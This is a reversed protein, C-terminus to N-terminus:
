VPTEDDSDVPPVLQTQEDDSTVLQRLPASSRNALLCALLRKGPVTAIPPTPRFRLTNSPNEGPHRNANEPSTSEASSSPVALPLRRILSAAQDIVAQTKGSRLRLAWGQPMAQRWRDDGKTPESGPLCLHGGAVVQLLALEPVFTSPATTSPPAHEPNPRLWHSWDVALFAHLGVNIRQEDLLNNAWAHTDTWRCDNYATFPIWRVGRGASRTAEHAHQDIWVAADALVDSLPRLGFGPVVPPQWGSAASSPARGILLNRLPQGPEHTKGAKNPQGTTRYFSAALAAAIRLEAEAALLPELLGWVTAATATPTLYTIDDRGRTSMVTTHELATLAALYELLTQGTVDRSFATEKNDARRKALALAASATSSLQRGRQQLPALVEIHPNTAITIDDSLTATYALGNRQVISYRVVRSIAKDIGNSRCAAYMASAQTAIRGTWSAKGQAFVHQVHRGTLPQEWVPAWVEGRSEEGSAGPVPADAPSAYLTFPMAARTSGACALRRAPSSAYLLLGEMMLVYVWPNVQSDASGFAWSGPGSAAHPDFQGIAAGVILPTTNTGEALDTLWGLSRSENGGLEPIVDALRQHFNTSFDLRGDNGGTGAVIPFLTKNDTIVVAVDLWPLAADPLHNRLYRLLHDKSWKLLEAQSAAQDAVTHALAMPAFRAEPRQTIATLYKRQNKDKINYGSGGSWPSVIPSPAYRHLLFDPLDQCSTTLVCTNGTWHLTAHPDVQQSVIRHLGLAALYTALTIPKLGLFQAEQPTQTPTLAPPTDAAAATSM